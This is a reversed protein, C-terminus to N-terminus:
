AIRKVTFTGEEVSTSTSWKCGAQRESLLRQSIATRIYVAKSLPFAISDGIDMERISGIISETVDKEM